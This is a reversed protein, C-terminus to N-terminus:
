IKSNKREHLLRIRKLIKVNERFEKTKALETITTYLAGSPRMWYTYGDERTVQIDDEVMKTQVKKM